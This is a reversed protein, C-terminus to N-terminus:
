CPSGRETPETTTRISLEKGGEVVDKQKQKKQRGSTCCTWTGVASCVFWLILNLFSFGLAARIRAQGPPLYIGGMLGSAIAWMSVISWQWLFVIVLWLRSPMTILVEAAFSLATIISLVAVVLTFVTRGQAVSGESLDSGCLSVTTIGGLLQLANMSLYFIRSFPVHRWNIQTKIM